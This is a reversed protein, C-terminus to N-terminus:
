RMRRLDALFPSRDPDMCVAIVLVEYAKTLRYIGRGFIVTILYLALLLAAVGPLLQPSFGTAIVFRIFVGVIIVVLPPIVSLRFQGEACERDYDDWLALKEVHLRNEIMSRDAGVKAKAANVLTDYGGGESFDYPTVSLASLVREIGIRSEATKLEDRILNEYHLLVERSPGSSRAGHTLLKPLTSISPERGAIDIDEVCLASGVLYAVFTLVGLLTTTGVSGGWRILQSLAADDVGASPLWDVVVLFLALLWLYGAALPTRLDRLGPLITTLM